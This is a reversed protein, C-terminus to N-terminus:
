PLQCDLGSLRTIRQPFMTGSGFDPNVSAYDVVASNCDTFTFTMSGWHRRDVDDADFDEGFWTGSTTLMQEFHLVDGNVTGTGVLWIQNANDDYTYWAVFVQGAGVEQIFWGQGDLDPDSWQGSVGPAEPQPPAAHSGCPLGPIGILRQLTRSGSGFEEPGQYDLTGSSCNAFEFEANGWPVLELSTPDFTSGFGQGRTILIDDFIVRSGSISGVGVMWAQEGGDDDGGSGIPPYTFWSMAAFDEQIVEILWGEGDREPDYYSGSHGAHIQDLRPAFLLSTPASLGAQGAEALAGMPAGTQGNFRLVQNTQQCAVYLHGDPGFALARSFALGGSGAAVFEDVFSASAMDFRLVNGAAGNAIYIHGQNDFAVDWPDSVHSNDPGAIDALRSGNITSFAMIRNSHAETVYLRSQHFGFGRLPLNMLDNWSFPNIQPENTQPFNLRAREADYREIANDGLVVLQNGPIFGLARPFSSQLQRPTPLGADLYIDILQGSLRDFRRVDGSALLYLRGEDDLDMDSFETLVPGPNTAEPAAIVGRFRGELDFSLIRDSGSSAVLLEWDSEQQPDRLPRPDFVFPPNNDPPPQGDFPDFPYPDLWDSVGDDDSDPESRSPRLAQGPMAQTAYGAIIPGFSSIEAANNARQGVITSGCSAGGCPINPNSFVDVRRFRDHHATGFSGMITHFRQDRIFAYNAREPDDGSSASRQHEANLNHGLEHTFVADSCVSWNSVGDNDIHVGFSSDYGGGPARRPFWAIGCSGRTEIDHPWTLAVIDAGYTQRTQQLNGLGPVFQGQLARSLDRLAERNAQHQDYNVMRHHVLRVVIPVESDVMAQNAIAVLHNLRTEILSGPYREIMEPPYIFMVDIQSTGSLNSQSDYASSSKEAVAGLEHLISSTHDTGSDHAVVPHLLPQGLTDNHFNDVDLREDDLDILWTGTADSHVLFLGEESSIRGFLGMEGYTLTARELDNGPNSAHVSIDGNGHKSHRVVELALPQKQGLEVRLAQGLAPLARNPLLPMVVGPPLDQFGSGGPQSLLNLRDQDQDVQWPQALLPPPGSQQLQPPPPGAQQGQVSWIVLGGVVLASALLVVIILKHM